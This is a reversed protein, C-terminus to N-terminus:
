EQHVANEAPRGALLLIAKLDQKFQPAALTVGSVLGDGCFEGGMLTRMLLKLKLDYTDELKTAETAEEKEWSEQKPQKHLKWGKSDWSGRWMEMSLHFGKLYPKMCPYARTVYVVFGRDSRLYKFELNTVGQNLEHLWYYCIAKMRDWKEQSTLVVVGCDEEVCVSVGAWAGPRQTGNSFRLKRLADQIGLSSQKISIAHGSERVRRQGQGTIRLDDVFCVFDSALSGDARCKSIWAESPKYGRTGPLNLLISNWQFAKEPDHRDGRIVEELILYMKISNYPSSKFGM